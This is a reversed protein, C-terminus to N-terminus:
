IIRCCTKGVIRHQKKQQTRFIGPLLARQRLRLQGLQGVLSALLKLALAFAYTSHISSRCGGTNPTPQITSHQPTTTGFGASVCFTSNNFLALIFHFLRMKMLIKTANGDVGLSSHARGQVSHTHARTQTTEEPWKTQTRKHAKAKAKARRLHQSRVAVIVATRYVRRALSLSKLGSRSMMEAPSIFSLSSVSSCVGVAFVFCVYQNM